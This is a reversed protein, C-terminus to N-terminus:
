KKLPLNYVAKKAIPLDSGPPLMYMAALEFNNDYLRRYEVYKAGKKLSEEDKKSLPGIKSLPDFRGESKKEREKDIEEIQKKIDEINNSDLMDTGNWGKMLFTCSEINPFIKKVEPLQKSLIAYTYIKGQDKKIIDDRKKDDSVFLGLLTDREEKDKVNLLIFTKGASPADQGIIQNQDQIKPNYYKM